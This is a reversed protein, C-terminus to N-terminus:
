LWTQLSYAGTTQTFYAILEPVQLRDPNIGTGKCQPHQWVDQFWQQSYSKEWLYARHFFYIFIVVVPIPKGIDDSNTCLQWSLLQQWLTNLTTVTANRRLFHFSISHFDEYYGILSLSHAYNLNRLMKNVSAKLDM